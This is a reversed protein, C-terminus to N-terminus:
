QLVTQCKIMNLRALEHVERPGLESEQTQLQRVGKMSQFVKKKASLQCPAVFALRLLKVAASTGKCM